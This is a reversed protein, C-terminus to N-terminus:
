VIGKNNQVIRKVSPSFFIDSVDKKFYASIKLGLELSPTKGSLTRHITQRSVGIEEALKSVTLDHKDLLFQLNNQM